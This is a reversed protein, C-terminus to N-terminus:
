RDILDYSVFLLDDREAVLQLIKANVHHHDILLAEQLETISIRGVLYMLVYM